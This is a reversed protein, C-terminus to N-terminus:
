NAVFQSSLVVRFVCNPRKPCTNRAVVVTTYIAAGTRFIKSEGEYGRMNVAGSCVCNCKLRFNLSINRIASSYESFVLKIKAGAMFLSAM